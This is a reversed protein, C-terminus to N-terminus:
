VSKRVPVAVAPADSTHDDNASPGISIMRHRLLRDVLRRVDREVDDAAAPFLERVEAVLSAVTREGDCSEWVFAATANLTLVKATASNYLVMGADPLLEDDVDPNKIPRSELSLDSGDDLGLLELVAPGGNVPPGILRGDAGVVAASPTGRAGLQRGFAFGADLVVPSAFGTQRTAEPDGSSVVVLPLRNTAARSEWARVDDLIRKCFGCGPNWLLLLTPGTRLKSFTTIAGDLDPLEFDVPPAAPVLSVAHDILRAIADNGKALPLGITGDPMILAAAPTGRVGYAGAVERDQQLLVNSIGHETAKERNALTTGRSIIAVTLARAHEQQWRAVQPLLAACPGCGPDAFVLVVPRAFGLLRDLTVHPGDITPLSFPPAADGSALAPAPRATEVNAGTASTPELRQSQRTLRGLSVLLVIQTTLLGLGVAGGIVVAREFVSLASLWAVLSPAPSNWHVILVAAAMAALVVNRVLVGRGVPESSLQGFCHCNPARGQALSRAIGAIFTLLLALAAAAGYPVTPSAFLAIAVVLEALPLALGLVGAAAVPVGFDILAQRSGAVDRLKAIGAVAFLGALSIRFLLAVLGASTMPLVFIDSSLGFDLGAFYAGSSAGKLESSFAILTSRRRNILFANIM